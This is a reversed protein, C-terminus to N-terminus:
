QAVARLDLNLHSRTTCDKRASCGPGGILNIEALRSQAELESDFLEILGILFGLQFHHYSCHAVLFPGKGKIRGQKFSKPFRHRAYKVFPSLQAGVLFGKLFSPRHNRCRGTSESEEGHACLSPQLFLFDNYHAQAGAISCFDRFYKM